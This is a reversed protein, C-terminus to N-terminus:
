SYRFPGCKPAHILWVGKVRIFEIRVPESRPTKLTATAKDGEVKLGELRAEGWARAAEGRRDYSAAMMDAILGPLAEPRRQLETFAKALHRGDPGDDVFDDGIGHKRAVGRMRRHLPRLAQQEGRKRQEELEKVTRAYDDMMVWAFLELTGEDCSAFFTRWDGVRLGQQTAAFVDEPINHAPSPPCQPPVVPFAVGPAVALLLVPLWTRANAM